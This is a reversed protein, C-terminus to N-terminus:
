RAIVSFPASVVEERWDAAEDQGAYHEFIRNFVANSGSAPAPAQVRAGELPVYSSNEQVWKRIHEMREREIPNLLAEAHLTLPATPASPVAFLKALRLDTLWAMAEDVSQLAPASMANANIWLDVQFREDWLDYKLAIEIVTTGHVQTGEQLRMRILLRNTLGSRLDKRISEPFTLARVRAGIQRDDIFHTLEGAHLTTGILLLWAALLLRTV